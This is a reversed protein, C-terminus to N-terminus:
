AARNRAKVKRMQKRESKSYKRDGDDDDESEDVEYRDRERRSGDVWESARSNGNEAAASARNADAVADAIRLTAPPTQRMTDSAEAKTRSTERPSKREVASSESDRSHDIFGEADLVVHRAYSLAGGLLLWHGLLSCGTTIIPQVQLDVGPLWGLFSAIASAYAAFSLTSLGVAARSERADHCARFAIWAAPLGLALWWAAGERLGTWGTFHGALEAVLTHLGIVCNASALLCAASAWKWIRYRGRDDDLRHRRISHILASTLSALLLIVCGFWAAVGRSAALFHPVFNLLESESALTMELKRLGAVAGATVIGVAAFFAISGLRRPVFDSVHPHREVGAAEGYRGEAREAPAARLALHSRSASLVEENLVRRRRDNRGPFSAMSQNWSVFARVCRTGRSAHHDTCGSDLAYGL